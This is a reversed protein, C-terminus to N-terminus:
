GNKIIRGESRGEAIFKDREQNMPEGKGIAIKM